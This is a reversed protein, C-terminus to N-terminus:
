SQNHDVIEQFSLSGAANISQHLNVSLCASNILVSHDLNYTNINVWSRARSSPKIPVGSSCGICPHIIYQLSVYTHTPFHHPLPSSLLPQPSSPHLPFPPSPQPTFPYPILVTHLLTLSIPAFHHPSLFLPILALDRHPSVGREVGMYKSYLMHFILVM